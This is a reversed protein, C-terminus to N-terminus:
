PHIVFRGAVTGARLREYASVADELAVLEAATRILGRSALAVVDHLEPLSGWYPFVLDVNSPLKRPGVSLSGGGMGNVIITGRQNIVSAALALTADNGVFDLVALVKCPDARIDDAAGPGALVGRNAGLRVAYELKDADTDVAVISARGLRALLQVAYHGLGGVGIVVVRSDPMLHTSARVVSHYATVAADALPGCERPDLDGLPVLHRPSDVLAYDAIGGDRGLGLAPLGARHDCLNEAGARCERCRGCGQPAYVLYADGEHLNAAEPGAADVWGAIEHGLTFPMAAAPVAGDLALLDSRCVGCGAVKLRVQTGAPEPVKVERLEPPHHPAVVQLARMTRGTM